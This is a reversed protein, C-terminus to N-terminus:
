KEGGLMAGFDPARRAGEGPPLWYEQGWDRRAQKEMRQFRESARPDIMMALQDLVARQFALRAYWLSSGPAFRGAVYLADGLFHTEEGQAARQINRILFDGLVSEVASVQPGAIVSAWSNGYRTKDVFLIDAFVGLGGGQLIAAGWARLGNPDTPDLSYPDRGQNLQKAQLALAGMVTMAAFTLAGHTLRRGDFGRAFARAFHLAIFSTTFNRYFGFGRRAEGWGTGPRSDGVLVARAIPDSDIVGYDMEGNILKSLKESAAQASPGGQDAVDMPRTLLANRRPEHPQAEAIIKWDAEGIGHRGLAERFTPDLDAFTTGRERAVHAMMELGFANRWIATWRRLGSARIVGSGLKAAVGSKLTEGLVRDAQGVGHAIADAVLGQQAAFIEAGPEAMMATARRFVNMAPIGAFRASMAVTAVDSISSVIASGMQAAVLLSRMNGVGQAIEVDVPIRNAGTVEAWLGEFAKTQRRLSSELKRNAKVGKAASVGLEAGTKTLRGPERAFLDLIFRKTAEPNPGFVQMMGIDRAMAHIHNMMTEYVSAHAGVADAIAQWSEASKWSFFRPFDRANALMPRGGGAGTPPGEAHGSIFGATAEDLLQEFRADTLPRGTDFDLMDARDVHERVLAKFREAGLARVKADDIDPNPLRWNKRQPLAGGADVFQLRLDEGVGTAAGWADAVARAEPAVAQDGYLARLVDLERTTEAKTDLRKPRLFEIAEAFKAHARGRIDRALYFASNWTAIEHPDRGLMARVASWLPSTDIGTRWDAFQIALPAKGEAKLGSLLEDYTNFARLVNAQAIASRRALDAKRAAKAAMEIAVERAAAIADAGAGEAALFREKDFGRHRDLADLIERAGREGVRGAKIKRMFCSRVSM